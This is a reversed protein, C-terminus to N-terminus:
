SFRICAAMDTNGQPVFHQTFCDIAEQYTPYFLGRRVTSDFERLSQDFLKRFSSGNLGDRVWQQPNFPPFPPLGTFWQTSSATNNTANTVNNCSSSAHEANIDEGDTYM